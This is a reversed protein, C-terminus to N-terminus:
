QALTVTRIDTTCHTEAPTPAASCSMPWPRCPRRPVARIQCTPSQPHSSCTGSRVSCMRHPPISSPASLGIAEAGFRVQAAARGGLSQVPRSPRCHGMVSRSRSQTLLSLRLRAASRVGRSVCRKWLVLTASGTWAQIERWSGEIGCGAM